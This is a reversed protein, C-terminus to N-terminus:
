CRRMLDQMRVPLLDPVRRLRRKRPEEEYGKFGIDQNEEDKYEGKRNYELIWEIVAYKAKDVFYRGDSKNFPNEM